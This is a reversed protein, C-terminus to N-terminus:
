AMVFPSEKLADHGNDCIHKYLTVDAMNLVLDEFNYQSNDIINTYTPEKVETCVICDDELLRPQAPIFLTISNVYNVFPLEDLM